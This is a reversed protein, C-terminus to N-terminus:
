PCKYNVNETYYETNVKMERRLALSLGEPGM